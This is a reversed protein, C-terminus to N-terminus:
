IYIDMNKKIYICIYIFIYVYIYIHINIHYHIYEYFPPHAPSPTHPRSRRSAQIVHGGRVKRGGASFGRRWGSVGRRRCGLDSPAGGGVVSPTGAGVARCERGRKWGPLGCRRCGRASPTSDPGVMTSAGVAGRGRARGRRALAPCSHSWPWGSAPKHGERATARGRRRQARSTPRTGSGLASARGPPSRPSSRRRPAGGVM